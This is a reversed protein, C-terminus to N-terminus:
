CRGLILASLFIRPLWTLFWEVIFICCFVYYLTIFVYCDVILCDFCVILLWLMNPDSIMNEPSELWMKSFIIRIMVKKFSFLFIFDSSFNVSFVLIKKTMKINVCVCVCYVNCVFVIFVNCVLCLLIKM